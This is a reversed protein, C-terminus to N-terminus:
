VHARGIKGSGCFPDLVRGGEPTLMEVLRRMVEVPKRCPHWPHEDKPRCNPPFFSWVNTFNADRPCRSSFKHIFKSGSGWPKGVKKTRCMGDSTGAMVSHLASIYRAVGEVSIADLLVGPVKVDEYPGKTEFFQRRKGVAWIFISEHARNLRDSPSTNRKVWVVHECLRWGLANSEAYWEWSAPFQGFWAVFDTAVRGCEALIDRIAVPKDWEGCLQNGYPPDTIVTTAIGDPQSKLWPLCDSNIVECTM